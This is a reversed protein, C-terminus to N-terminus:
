KIKRVKIEVAYCDGSETDVIVPEGSSSHGVVPTEAGSERAKDLALNWLNPPQDM